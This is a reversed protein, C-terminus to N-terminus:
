QPLQSAIDKMVGAASDQGNFSKVLYQNFLQGLQDSNPSSPMPVATTSAAKITADAGPIAAHDFWNAQEATRASLARGATALEGLMGPGTMTELAKFAQDPTKCNKSIGWGSGASFTATGGSGAPLTVIGVNFKAKAKADLLSWPGDINMATSGALFENNGFSSDGGAIPAAVKEVNTLDSVWQLGKAFQPDSANITGDAGVVRGGNYALVQSEINLDASNQAIAYKGAGSLKKADALFEETTWGPKPDALGAAKFKDKNYFMVMPGVDYPLGYLNGDASLGTIMSKDFDALNVNNKKVLDDLPLLGDKLATTRLSQVAVLCPASNSSLQTSMKTFYDAFTSGQLTIHVDPVKSNVTDAVKQWADQDATGGVWMAWTMDTKGGANSPESGSGCGTVGLLGLALVGALLAEKRM